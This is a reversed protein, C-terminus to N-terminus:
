KEELIEGTAFDTTTVSTISSSAQVPMVAVTEVEFKRDDPSDHIDFVEYAALHADAIASEKSSADTVTLTKYASARITVRYDM